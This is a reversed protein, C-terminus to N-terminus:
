QQLEPALEECRDVAFPADAPLVTDSDVYADAFYLPDEAVYERSLVLTEPDLTFREVIRLEGSHPVGGALTGPEFGVTEVVLTDGDWHGISHGARSPVIGAPHAAIDMHVVRTLGRGYDLTIRDATQTIRNITGDFVWDFLISVIECSQRARDATTRNRQAAQAALGAETLTVPPPFWGDPGDPMPIDGAEIAPIQSMPVLGVRGDPARALIQQEQAWDGALNPEGTPLWAPRAHQEVPVTDSLQQYRELTSSEGLTLTDVHCATPDDRHPRGTIAISVGPEFMEPSWGSRRLVTAARMECRMAIVTGDDAVSDFNVYAHPNVFDVGSVLGELEIYGTPDYRGIGHHALAQGVFAAPAILFAAVFRSSRAAVFPM